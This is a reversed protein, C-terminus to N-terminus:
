KEQNEIEKMMENRIAEAQVMVLAGQTSKQKRPQEKRNGSWILAIVILVIGFIEM